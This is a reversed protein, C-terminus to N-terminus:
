LKRDIFGNSSGAKAFYVTDVVDSSAKPAGGPFDWLRQFNGTSLDKVVFRNPDGPLAEVSWEPAAPPTGLQYLDDREPRCAGVMVATLLIISYLTKKM